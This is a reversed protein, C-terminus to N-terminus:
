AKLEKILAQLAQVQQLLKDVAQTAAGMAKNTQDSIAAIEEVSRNIEESAASQEESAAAISQVQDNVHTVYELIKNLANGSEASLTTAESIAVTSQEVNKINKQTGDQIDSIALSQSKVAGISTVVQTVLSTGQEAQERTQLSAEAAHQANNAVELITANMEEMATATERVRSAQEQAGRKSQEVQASLEESAVTLVAVVTELQEAAKNRGAAEAKEAKKTAEEALAMAEKAAQAESAAEQSKKESELIKEKLNAVMKVLVGYVGGDGSVPKFKTDLDGAAISSAVDKLYGPDEGLQKLVGRIIFISITAAALVSLGMLLMLQFKGSEYSSAAEKASALSGKNNVDIMTSLQKTISNYLTLTDGMILESAEADKNQRALAEVKNHIEMYSKWRTVFKDLAVQEEPELKTSAYQNLKLQINNAADRSLMEYEALKASDSSLTHALEYRRFANVQDNIEGVLKISPLWNTSLEQTDHNINSMAFMALMGIVLAFSALTTSLLTLKWSLKM